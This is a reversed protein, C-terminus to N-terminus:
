GDYGKNELKHLKDKLVQVDRALHYYQEKYGRLDHVKMYLEDNSQELLVMREMIAAFRDPVKTFDPLRDAIPHFENTM